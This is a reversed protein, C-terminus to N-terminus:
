GLDVAVVEHLRVRPVDVLLRNEQFRVKIRSGSELLQVARARAGDPLTMVIRFPGIAPIIERFPGKMFMANNMNVLHVTVSSKQQWYSVDLVGPGQVSLAAPEDSAWEVAGQLLKQHDSAMVKWFTRDLDMPFYVVRGAGISNCFAMAIDSHTTFTYVREMPLDPYSPILSLPREANGNPKVRIQRITGIIRPANVLQRTLTHPHLPVLYSNHVPEEIKGAFDCGFLDALAFNKRARGFEDYLSTEATAVIRGGSRVYNRLQECQANSLCAVNPLILVRYRSIQDLELLREDVFEFPIRAEVLAHYYGNQADIIKAGETEQPRTPETDPAYFTASQPSNVIAVRALNERNRLYKDNRHHWQYIKEVVPVWRPDLVKANFKCMWPRFGQAIGAHVWAEIEAPNQVSDKWRNEDEIGVNFIGMVPLNHMTARVIKAYKGNAWIPILESRGQHDSALLPIQVDKLDSIGGNPSFFSDSKSQKVTDNWLTYQQYRMEVNWAIYAKRQPDLPNMSTPLELGTAGRFKTRCTNCWCMGSGAWRNGFFGEPKYLDTIEKLVQPMFEFMFGGNQCTVYMDPAAWHRRPKGDQTCAAWEPRATFAEQSLAHPDVRAIISMKLARCGNVMEGFIDRGNLYKARHQLPLNSPYFAISGGASLCVAQAHTKRFLDFWFKPDYDIPNDETFAVQMWRMANNAWPLSNTERTLAFAHEAGELNGLAVFAAAGFFVAERRTTVNTSKPMEPNM